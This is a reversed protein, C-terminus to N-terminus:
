LLAAPDPKEAVPQWTGILQGKSTVLCPGKRHKGFERTFTHTTLTKM